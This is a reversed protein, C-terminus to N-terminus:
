IGTLKSISTLMAKVDKVQSADMKFCVDAFFDLIKPLHIFMAQIFTTEESFARANELSCSFCDVAEDLSTRKLYDDEQMSYIAYSQSVNFGQQLLKILYFVEHVFEKPVGLIASLKDFSRYEDRDDPASFCFMSLLSKGLAYVDRAGFIEKAKKVKDGVSLCNSKFTKELADVDLNCPYTPISRGLLLEWLAEQTKKSNKKLCLKRSYVAVFKSTKALSLDALKPNGEIDVFINKPSINGHFISLDNHLIKLGKFLSRVFYEKEHISMKKLDAHFSFKSHPMLMGTTYGREIEINLIEFNDLLGTVENRRIFKQRLRSNFVSLADIEDRSPLKFSSMCRQSLNYVERISNNKFFSRGLVILDRFSGTFKESFYNDTVRADLVELSTKRKLLSLMRKHAVALDKSDEKRLLNDIKYTLNGRNFEKLIWKRSVFLRKSLSNVSVWIERQRGNESVTLKVSNKSLYNYPEQFFGSVEKFSIRLVPDDELSKGYGQFSFREQLKGELFKDGHMDYSEQAVRESSTIGVYSM